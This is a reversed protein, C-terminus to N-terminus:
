GVGDCGVCVRLSRQVCEGCDIGLNAIADVLKKLTDALLHTM